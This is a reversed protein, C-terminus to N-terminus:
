AFKAHSKYKIIIKELILYTIILFSLNILIGISEHIVSTEINSLSSLKNQTVISVFIRSTNVTITLFFAFILAILISVIKKFHSNTYKLLLFMIMLFSLIWFNFGACSKDILIDLHNNYYGDNEIYVSTSGTLSNILTDTPKILFILEEHSAYKFGLKFVLFLFIGFIYYPLNKDLNM